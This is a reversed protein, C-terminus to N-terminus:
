KRKSQLTTKIQALHDEAHAVILREVIDAVTMEGQRMNIGKQHREASSMERITRAATQVEEELLKLLREPEGAGGQEVGALREPADPGRGFVLVEGAAILVQCHGLWYPIMEVLHGMVQMVSWEDEGRAARLRQAVDPQNLLAAIQEYVHELRRAQAEGPSEVAAPSPSCMQLRNGFPDYFNCYIVYGPVDVPTDCRVDKARLTACTKYCDDTNFVITTGTGPQWGTEALTVAINGYSAGGNFEVWGMEPLDYVPAGLGLVNGYFERALDLDTVSISVVHIGKFLQM